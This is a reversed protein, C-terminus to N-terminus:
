ILSKRAAFLAKAIQGARRNAAESDPQDTLVVMLYPHGDDDIYACDTTASLEGDGIWGAKNRVTVNKGKLSDRIFSRSTEALLKGFWKANKSGTQLYQYLDAWIRAMSKASVDAYYPMSSDFDIAYSNLWDNYASGMRSQALSDYASNSSYRIASEINSRDYEGLDKGKEDKLVYLAFAAKFASASYFLEGANCAIGKGSALDLFVFGCDYGAEKLDKVSQRIARKRKKGLTPKTETKAKPEVNTASASEAGPKTASATKAKKKAAAGPKAESKATAEVKTKDIANSTLAFTSLAHREPIRRLAKGTMDGSVDLNEEVVPEEEAKPVDDIDLRNEIDQLNMGSYPLAITTELLVAPQIGLGSITSDPAFDSPQELSNLVPVDPTSEATSSASEAANAQGLGGLPLMLAVMGIFCLAHVIGVFRKLRGDM